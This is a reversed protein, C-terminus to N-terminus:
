GGLQAALSAAENNGNKKDSKWTWKAYAKNPTEEYAPEIKKSDIKGERALQDIKDSDVDLKIVQRFLPRPMIKELKDVNWKRRYGQVRTIKVRDGDYEVGKDVILSDIEAKVDALEAECDAMGSNRRISEIIEQLESYRALLKDVRSM